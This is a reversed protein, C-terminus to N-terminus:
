VTIPKFFQDKEGSILDKIDILIKYEGQELWKFGISIDLGEEKATLAKAQDYLSNNEKDVIRISIEVKGTTEEKVKARKFDAVTFSLIRDKFLFNKIKIKPTEEDKRDLYELFFDAYVNKDYILDYAKNKMKIKIKRQRQNEEPEYTLIYVIDEKHSIKELSKELDNSGILEGGTKKTIERLSNEIDTSITRYELDESISPTLSRMFITHFTANVNIFLKSVQDVPFDDAVDMEMELDLLAKQLRKAVSASETAKMVNGTLSGINENIRRRFRSDLKLKLFREYQYFNIVWKELKVKELYKAFAYYKDIDPYLFLRKYQKFVYLYKELFIRFCDPCLKCTFCGKMSLDNKSYNYIARLQDSHRTLLIRAKKSDEKLLAKLNRKEVGPDTIIKEPIFTRNALVMLHDNKRLVKDFLYDIGKEVDLHIDTFNFILVFLRPKYVVQQINAEFGVDKVQIKKRFSNCGNIEKLKGNVYLLFDSKKLDPVPKGKYYVRVPVEINVVSVKEQVTELGTLLACNFLIFIILVFMNLSRM